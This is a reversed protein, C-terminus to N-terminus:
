KKFKELEVIVFSTLSLVDKLTVIIDEKTYEHAIKNRLERISMWKDASSVLGAKEAKDLYDRMEGRFGPDLELIELRIYKSLFIDTCRAFRSTLAEWPEFDDLNKTEVQPLSMTKVKNWSHNLTNLADIFDIKFNNLLEKNTTTM